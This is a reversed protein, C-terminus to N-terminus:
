LGCQSTCESESRHIWPHNTCRSFCGRKSQESSCDQIAEVHQVFPLFGEAVTKPKVDSEEM